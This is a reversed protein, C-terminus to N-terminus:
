FIGMTQNYVGETKKILTFFDEFNIKKLNSMFQTVKQQLNKPTPSLYKDGKAFLNGKNEYLFKVLLAVVFQNKSGFGPNYKTVVLSNNWTKLEEM